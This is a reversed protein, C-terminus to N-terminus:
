FENFNLHMTSFFFFYYYFIYFIFYFIFYFLFYFIFFLDFLFLIFYFYIENLIFIFNTYFYFLPAIDFWYM